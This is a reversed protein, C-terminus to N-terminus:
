GSSQKATTVASRSALEVVSRPSSSEGETSSQSYGTPQPSFICSAAHIMVADRAGGDGVAEVLARHTMLANQRHKNVISNHKHSMFNRASLVLMYAIVFFILFKSIALQITDYVSDPQLGPVKHVFLSAIACLGLLSAIRVTRRRWEESRAEHAESEARFHAAQQTVGEEAAVERIEELVRRAEKEHGEMAKELTSSRDEMSQLTARADADLRQFDAARHLSYAIFTHLSQFSQPYTSILQSVLSQQQQKPNDVDPSFSLIQSFLNFANNAQNKIETLVNDPFDQLAGPSLRQFLEVLRQSPEVAESFNLQSGLDETRRLTETDFGQVRELSDRAEKYQKESGVIM